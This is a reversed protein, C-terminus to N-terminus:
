EHIKPPMVSASKFPGLAPRLSPLSPAATAASAPCGPRMRPTTAARTAAGNPMGAVSAM